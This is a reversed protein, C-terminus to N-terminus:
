QWLMNDVYYIELIFVNFESASLGRWIVIEIPVHLRLAMCLGVMNKRWVLKSWGYFQTVLWRLALRLATELFLQSIYTCVLINSDTCVFLCRISCHAEVQVSHSQMSHSKISIYAVSLRLSTLLCWSCIICIFIIIHTFVKPCEPAQARKTECGFGFSYICGHLTAM